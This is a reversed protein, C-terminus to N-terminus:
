TFRTAAGGPSREAPSTRGGSAVGGAAFAGAGDRGTVLVGSAAGAFGFRGAGRRVGVWAVGVGSGAFVVARGSGSVFTGVAPPPGTPPRPASTAVTRVSPISNGNGPYRCFM